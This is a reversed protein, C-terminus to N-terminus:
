LIVIAQIEVQGRSGFDKTIIPRVVVGKIASRKRKKMCELCLSKFMEIVEVTINAYKPFLEKIMKDRGGHGTALHARHIIGFMEDIHVFYKHGEHSAEEKKVLKEVDGCQLVQYRDCKDFM